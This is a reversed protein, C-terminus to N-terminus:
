VRTTSVKGCNPCIPQYPYWPTSLTNKYMEEYIKRIADAKDLCIKIYANMQGSTYLDKAWIIEPYAGITNFVHKFEMAFYEAYDAFKKEPSPVTFLPMGLYKEYKEQPLYVPLADMPDHNDFVYTFKSNVQIKRLSKFILDHIIVGRLSGVHIRGSPTKMDDVWEVPLNRKKIEEAISDSWYM